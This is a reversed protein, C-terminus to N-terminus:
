RAGEDEKAESDKHEFVIQEGRQAFEVPLLIVREDVHEAEREAHRAANENEQDHLELQAKIAKM